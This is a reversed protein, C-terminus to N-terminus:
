GITNQATKWRWRELTRPSITWCDALEKQNMCTRPQMPRERKPNRSLGHAMWGPSTTPIPTPHLPSPASAKWEQPFRAPPPDGDWGM